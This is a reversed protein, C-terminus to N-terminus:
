QKDLKSLKKKQPISKHSMPSKLSSNSLIKTKTSNTKKPEENLRQLINTAHDIIYGLITHLEKMVKDDKILSVMNKALLVIERIMEISDKSCKNIYCDIVSDVKEKNANYITKFDSLMTSFTTVAEEHTLLKNLARIVGMFDLRKYADLVNLGGIKILNTQHKLVLKTIFTKQDKQLHTYEEKCVNMCEHIPKMTLM